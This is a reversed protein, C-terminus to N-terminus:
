YDKWCNLHDFDLRLRAREAYLATVRERIEARRKELLDYAVIPMRKGRAKQLERWELALAKIEEKANEHRMRAGSAERYAREVEAYREAIGDAAFAADRAGSDHKADQEYGAPDGLFVRSFDIVAAGENGYPDPMGAVYRAGGEVGTVQYVAGRCSESQEDDLFWGTHNLGAIEDAFAVFRFGNRPAQEVWRNAGDFPAGAVPVIARSVRTSDEYQHAKSGCAIMERAEKMAALASRRGNRNFKYAQILETQM